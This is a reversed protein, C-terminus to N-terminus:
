LDFLFRVNDSTVKSVEPVDIKKIEAIAAAVLPIYKPHNRKGRLSQPPLFPADTELLIRNLPVKHFLERLADNKPYTIPGGIGLYFGWDLLLDAVEQSQSFCHAVGRVRNKYGELIKLVDEASERIHIVVPLEYAIAYELHAVFVDIQRQKFFPKHYFDLGTEGLGVIKNEEKKELLKKIEVMDDYWCESADCPHIGVTVWVGDFQKALKISAIADSLHTAVTIIKSVGVHAAQAVVDAVSGEELRDQGLM